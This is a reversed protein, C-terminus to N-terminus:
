LIQYNLFQAIHSIYIYCVNCHYDCETADFAGDYITDFEESLEAHSCTRHYSEVALWRADCVTQNCDEICNDNVFNVQEEQDATDTCDLTTTCNPAGEYQYHKELCDPCEELYGHVLTENVTGSPCYTHFQLTLAWAQFCMFAIEDDGGTYALDSCYQICTEEMLFHQLEDLTTQLASSDCGYNDLDANSWGSACSCDVFEDARNILVLSISVLLTSM